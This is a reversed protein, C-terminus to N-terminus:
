KAIFIFAILVVLVIGTMWATTNFRYLSLVRRNIGDLARNWDKLMEIQEDM